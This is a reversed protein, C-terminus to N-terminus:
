DNAGTDTEDISLTFNLIIVFVLMDNDLLVIFFLVACIFVDLIAGLVSLLLVEVNNDAAANVEALIEDTKAVAVVPTTVLGLEFDADRYKDELRFDIEVATSSDLM